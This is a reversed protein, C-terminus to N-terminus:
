AVVIRCISRVFFIFYEGEVYFIYIYLIVQSRRTQLAGAQLSASRAM